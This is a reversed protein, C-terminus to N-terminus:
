PCLSKGWPAKRGNYGASCLTPNQWSSFVDIRIVCEPVPSLWLIPRPVWQVWQPVSEKVMHGEYGGVRVPPGLSM